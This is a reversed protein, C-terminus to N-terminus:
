DNDSAEDEEEEDRTQESDEIIESDENEPSEDIFIDPTMDLASTYEFAMGASELMHRVFVLPRANGHPVVNRDVINEINTPQDARLINAMAHKHLTPNNSMELIEAAVDSGVTASFLRVEDEGLLRVPHNRGPATHKDRNTLRSPLGFHQLKASSVASWDSGTKELLMIYMGGILVPNKTTVMRGSRGRYTVPGIHIPFKDKLDRIIQPAEVPNDTPLFLYVGDRIVDAVHTHPTGKYSTSTLMEYMRPSVAKYYSLLYEWSSMTNDLLTDSMWKRVQNTVHRSTANIYQESLRGLNMRKITSDGDMIVEARNGEADVPMDEDKWVACIVGKDGHCGTLKFTETPNIDYEYTIEVRWDDLPIRRYMRISKDKGSEETDLIAEVLFNSFERSIRIGEPRKRKLEQYFRIIEKYTNQQANYYRETQAEMGVPTPPPNLRNDHKITIDVIKAGPTAYIPRDYVYDPQRLAAPTMEVPALMEDYRRLVMLLGDERITDDIDPFAKYTTDDGYLNLPFWEKGWSEVMTEFGKSQLKKLYSESVVVGDEIVGPISMLAVQTDVGYCYDGNHTISPSDALVTGAKITAGVHIKSLAATNYKYKFGFHQHLCHHRPLELIGIERTENEEYIVYMVPSSTFSNYGYSKPYKEFTKLITANCPMKIKFTTRGFKREVGTLTRRPTAGAVVLAQSIHSSSFMNVRASSDERQFSNLGATHLLEPRLQNPRDPGQQVQPLQSISEPSPM